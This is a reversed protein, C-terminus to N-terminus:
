PQLIEVIEEYVSLIYTIKEKYNKYENTSIKEEIEDLYMRIISNQQTKYNYINYFLRNSKANITVKFLENEDSKYYKLTKLAVLYEVKGGDKDIKTYTDAGENYEYGLSELTKNSAKAIVPVDDQDNVEYDKYFLKNNSYRKSLFIKTEYVQSENNEDIITIELFLGAKISDIVDQSLLDVGSSNEELYINDLNTSEYIVLEDGNSCTYLRLTISDSDYDMKDIGINEITLINVTKTQFFYGHNFYIDKNEHKLTYVKVTNYNNLFFILLLLFALFFVVIFINKFLYNLFKYFKFKVRNFKDVFTEKNNVISSLSIELKKCLNQITILDPVSRGKEWKSITRDSVNIMDALQKQTLNKENRIRKLTESFEAGTLEKIDEKNLEKKRFIKKM